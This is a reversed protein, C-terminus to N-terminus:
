QTDGAIRVRSSQRGSGDDFENVIALEATAAELRSGHPAPRKLYHVALPLLSAQSGVLNEMVGSLLDRDFWLVPSKFLKPQDVSLTRDTSALDIQLCQSLQGEFGTAQVSTSRYVVQTSDVIRCFLRRRKLPRGHQPGEELALLEAAHCSGPGCSFSVRQFTRETMSPPALRFSLEKFSL